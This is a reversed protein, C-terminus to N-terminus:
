GKFYQGRSAIGIRDQLLTTMDHQNDPIDAFRRKMLANKLKQFLYFDRPALNPLCPPNTTFV